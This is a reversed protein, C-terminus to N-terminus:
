KITVEKPIRHEIVHMVCDAGTKLIIFLTIVFVNAVGAAMFVGGFIIILHMPVIRLYPFFMLTGIHTPVLSEQKYHVLFSFVHNASYIAAGLIIIADLNQPVLAILFIFYVLHFFGYHFLFFFAIFINSSQVQTITEEQTKPKQVSFNKHILIRFFNIIGIIVSQTWYVWLLTGIQGGEYIFYAGFFLNVAILSILSSDIRPKM